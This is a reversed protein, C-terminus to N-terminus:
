IIYEKNAILRLIGNERKTTVPKDIHGAFQKNIIAYPGWKSFCVHLSHPKGETTTLYLYGEDDHMLVIEGSIGDKEYHSYQALSFICLMVDDLLEKTFDIELLNGVSKWEKEWETEQIGYYDRIKNKNTTQYSNKVGGIISKMVRGSDRDRHAILDAIEHISSNNGKKLHRRITILFGLIDYEDFERKQLIDKYHEIILREKLDMQEMTEIVWM